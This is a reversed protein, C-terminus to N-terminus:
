KLSIGHEVSYKELIPFGSFKTLHLDKVPLNKFQEYGLIEEVKSKLKARDCAILKPFTAMFNLYECYRQSIPWTKSQRLTKSEQLFNVPFNVTNVDLSLNESAKADSSSGASTTLQDKESNVSNSPQTDLFDASIGAQIKTLDTSTGPHNKTPNDTISPQPKTPDVCKSPQNKETKDKKLLAKMQDM